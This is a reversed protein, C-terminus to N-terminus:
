CVVRSSIRILYCHNGVVTALFCLNASNPDERLPVNHTAVATFSCPCCPERVHFHQIQCKQANAEKKEGKYKVHQAQYGSGSDNFLCTATM